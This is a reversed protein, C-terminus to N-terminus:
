PMIDKFMSKVVSEKPKSVERYTAEAPGMQRQNGGMMGMGQEPQPPVYTPSQNGSMMGGESVAPGMQWERNWRADNYANMFSNGPREYNSVPGTGWQPGTPQTGTPEGWTWPPTGDPNTPPTGDPNTPDTPDTPGSTAPVWPDYDPNTGTDDPDFAGGINSGDVANNSAQLAKYEDSAMIGQAIQDLSQGTNAWNQLFEDSGDRGLYLNYLSNVQDTTVADTMEGTYWNYNGQSFDREPGEELVNRQGAMHANLQEMSYGQRMMSELINNRQTMRRFADRGMNSASLEYYGFKTGGNGRSRQRDDLAHRWNANPGSYYYDGGTDAGFLRGYESSYDQNLNYQYDTLWDRIGM